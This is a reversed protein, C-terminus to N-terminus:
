ESKTLDLKISEKFVNVNYKFVPAEKILRDVEKIKTISEENIIKQNRQKQEETLEKGEEPLFDKPRKSELEKTFAAM